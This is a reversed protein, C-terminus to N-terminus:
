VRIRRKSALGFCGLVLSLLLASSGVDPANSIPTPFIQGDNISGRSEAASGIWTFDDYSSGHGTLYLSYPSTATGNEVVGVDTSTLGNASNGVAVFTGEYSLFQIVTTGNVLAFGDPAGNQIGLAAFDLAGYGNSENDIIGSLNITAYVAGGSANYLLIKYGTLDMGSAGAVEIFEGVDTGANDYHFENIWVASAPTAVSAIFGGVALAACKFLKSINIQNKM